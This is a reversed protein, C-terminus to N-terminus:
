TRVDRWFQAKYVVRVDLSFEVLVHLFNQLIINDLFSNEMVLSLLQVSFVPVKLVKEKLTNYRFFTADSCVSNM